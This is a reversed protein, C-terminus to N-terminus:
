ETSRLWEDVADLLQMRHGADSWFHDAGQVAVSAFTTGGQSQSQPGPGGDANISSPVASGSMGRLRAEWARYKADGTFQDATGRVSLVADQKAGGAIGGDNDDHSDPRATRAVLRGLASTFPGARLSTLAWLVSLPYSVLVHRIRVRVGSFCSASPPPPSDHFCRSASLSGASYGCLLLDLTRPSGAPPSGTSTGSSTPFARDVYYRVVSEYDEAEPIASRHEEELETASRRHTTVTYKALGRFPRVGAPRAWGM